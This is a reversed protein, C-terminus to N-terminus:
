RATRSRAIGMTHRPQRRRDTPSGPNFIQFGDKRRTCRSTRTASCSPTARRPLPARMRQLRGTAPGADHVMGIRVGELKVTRMLPLRAQLEWGDVNGRVAYM